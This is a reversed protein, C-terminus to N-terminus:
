KDSDGVRVKKIKTLYRITQKYTYTDFVSKDDKNKSKSPLITEKLKKKVKQAMIVTIYNIFENAIVSYDNHVNFTDLDVIDKMMQFMTEIEWRKMYAEYVELPDLEKNSEFVIVGFESNKNLYKEGDFENKQLEYIDVLTKFLM